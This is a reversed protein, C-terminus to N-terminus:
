CYGRSSGIEYILIYFRLNLTIRTTTEGTSEPRRMLVHGEYAGLKDTEQTVIEWTVRSRSGDQQLMKCILVGKRWNGM